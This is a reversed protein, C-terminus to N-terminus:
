IILYVDLAFAMLFAASLPLTYAVLVIILTPICAGYQSTKIYSTGIFFKDVGSAFPIIWLVAIILCHIKNTVVTFYQAGCMITAAKDFSLLLNGLATVELTFITSTIIDCSFPDEVDFIYSVIMGGTQITYLLVTLIGSVLLNITFPKSDSIM